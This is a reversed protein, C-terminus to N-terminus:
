RGDNDPNPTRQPGSHLTRAKPKKRPLQVEINMDHDLDPSGWVRVADVMEPGFRDQESCFVVTKGVWDAVKRGFMAKICQGNTSNLVLQKSTQKFSLIGRVKNKGNDQPLEEIDVDTITLPVKKGQFLGAKLFRGPFLEDYDVPKKM